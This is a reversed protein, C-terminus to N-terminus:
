KQVEVIYGIDFIVNDNKVPHMKEKSYFEALYPLGETAVRPIIKTIKLAATECLKEIGVKTYRLCDAEKPNHVPYISPFTITAKGNEKLADRITILAIVPDYIYEFVELCFILNFKGILNEPMENNLDFNYDPDFNGESNNDAIKYEKVDWSKTRGKIPKAGGGIDLVKDAKIDLKSLYNELQLRYYSAM